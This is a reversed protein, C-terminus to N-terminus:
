IKPKKTVRCSSERETFKMKTACAALFGIILNKTKPSAATLLGPPHNEILYRKTKKCVCNYAPLYFNHKDSFTVQIGHNEANRNRVLLASVTFAMMRTCRSPVLGINWKLLVIAPM